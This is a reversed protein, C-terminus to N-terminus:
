PIVPVYPLRVLGVSTDTALSLLLDVPLSLEVLSESSSAVFADFSAPLAAGPLIEAVVSVRLGVLTMGKTAAFSFWDESVTLWYLDSEVRANAPPMPGKLSSSSYEAYGFDVENSIVGIRELEVLVAFVDDLSQADHPSFVLELGDASPRVAYTSGDGAVRLLFRGEDIVLLNARGLLTDIPEVALAEGEYAVVSSGDHRVVTFGEARATQELAEVAVQAGGLPFIYYNGPTFTLAEGVSLFVAVAVLLASAAFVVAIRRINM